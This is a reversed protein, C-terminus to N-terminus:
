IKYYYFMHLIFMKLSICYVLFQTPARKGKNSHLMRRFIIMLMHSSYFLSLVQSSLQINRSQTLHPVYGELVGKLRERRADSVENCVLLGEIKKPKAEKKERYEEGSEESESQESDESEAEEEESEENEKGEIEEQSNSQAM